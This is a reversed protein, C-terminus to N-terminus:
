NIDPDADSDDDDMTYCGDFQNDDFESAVLEAPGSADPGIAIELIHTAQLRQCGIGIGSFRAFADHDAFRCGRLIPM